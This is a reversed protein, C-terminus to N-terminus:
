DEYNKGKKYLVLNNYIDMLIDENIKIYDQTDMEKPNYCNLDIPKGIKINVKSFLKYSSDISLPIIPVKAKIALMSAGPTPPLPNKGHNRTGEAFILLGFKEKKLIRLSKKMASIDIKNRDVPIVNMNSFIFRGIFSKFLEKKGLVYLLKKVSVAYVTPDHASIHNACLVYGTDTPLNDEGSISIRFFIKYYIKIINKLLNTM